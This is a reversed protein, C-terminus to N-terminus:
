DAEARCFAAIAAMLSAWHRSAKGSFNLSSAFSRKSSGSSVNLSSLTRNPILRLPTFWRMFFSSSIPSHKIPWLPISPSQLLQLTLVKRLTQSVCFISKVSRGLVIKHWSSFPPLFIFPTQENAHACMIYGKLRHRGCQASTPDLVHTPGFPPLM